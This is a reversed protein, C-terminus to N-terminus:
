DKTPDPNHAPDWVPMPGIIQELDKTIRGAIMVIYLRCHKDTHNVWAHNTARQVITDGKKLVVKHDPDDFEMSIEGELVHLVDVSDTRHRFPEAGPATPPIDTIRIRFGTTPLLFNVPGATPDPEMGPIPTPVVDSEWIDQVGWGGAALDGHFQPFGDLMVTSKGTEDHGTVVRRLRPYLKEIEDNSAAM